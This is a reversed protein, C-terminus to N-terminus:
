RSWLKGIQAIFHGVQARRSMMRREGEVNEYNSVFQPIKDFAFVGTVPNYNGVILVDSTQSAHNV